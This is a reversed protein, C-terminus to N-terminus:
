PERHARLYDLKARTEGEEFMALKEKVYTAMEHDPDGTFEVIRRLEERYRATAPHTGTPFFRRGGWPNEAAQLIPDLTDKTM